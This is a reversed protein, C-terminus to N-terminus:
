GGSKIFRRELVTRVENMYLEADGLRKALVAMAEIGKFAHPDGKMVEILYAQGVDAMLERLNDGAPSKWFNALEESLKGLELLEPTPLDQIM